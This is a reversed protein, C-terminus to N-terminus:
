SWTVPRITDRTIPLIPKSPIGDLQFAQYAVCSAALEHLTKLFLYKGPADRHYQVVPPYNLFAQWALAM